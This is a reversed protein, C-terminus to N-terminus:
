PAPSKLDDRTLHVTKVEGRRGLPKLTEGNLTLIIGQANGSTVSFSDHAKLTQVENPNLVRQLVTKGDAEVAVWARETAAVQLVLSGDPPFKASEPPASPAAAQTAVPTQGPPTSNAGASPVTGPTTATGSATTGAPAGAVTGPPVSGEQPGAGPAGPAGPTTSAPQATPQAAPPTTAASPTPTAPMEVTRRSYHYLLYGGALLVVAVLTAVVPSRGKTDSASGRSAPTMRVLDVDNSPHAALQYEALVREEELGLYRAYSRIFSRAFIGGPLKAFDEQEVAQLFRLSIKTAASIEELSVGRMERERRLNEGFAAM